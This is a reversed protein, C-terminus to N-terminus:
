HVKKIHLFWLLLQVSCSYNKLIFKNWLFVWVTWFCAIVRSVSKFKQEDAKNTQNWVHHYSVFILTKELLKTYNISCLRFIFRSRLVKLSTYATNLLFATRKKRKVQSTFLYSFTSPPGGRLRGVCSFSYLFLLPPSSCLSFLIQSHYPPYPM